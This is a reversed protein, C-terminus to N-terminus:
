TMAWIVTPWVTTKQLPTVLCIGELLKLLSARRACFKFFCLTRPFTPSYPAKIPLIKRQSWPELGLTRISTGPWLLSINFLLYLVTTSTLPLPRRRGVDL